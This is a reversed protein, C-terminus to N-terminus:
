FISMGTRRTFLELVKLGVLSNGFANLGPSWVCISLQGPVLAVIGGGVGSKGPLGVSFAFEGSQDYFGCSIMLANVRRARVPELLRVSDGPNIGANALFLFARAVDRCDLMLSCQHFYADLVADVENHINGFSRIFNALAMNRYGSERESRAIEESFAIGPNGSVQRVFALLETLADPCHSLLADTTVLAGANILPNRPIGNETELQVLSNFASGSPERGVRSWLAEGIRALVMSLVLVKSMSQISFPVDANGISYSGGELTEIAIGFHQPDAKALAPIYTAVRGQGCLAQAEEHIDRLLAAYDFAPYSLTKM